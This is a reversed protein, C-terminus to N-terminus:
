IIDIDAQLSGSERLSQVIAAEDDVLLIKKRGAAPAAVKM